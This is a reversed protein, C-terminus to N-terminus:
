ATAGATADVSTDIAGADIEGDGFNTQYFVIAANIAGTVGKTTFTAGSIADVDDAALIVADKGSFQSAFPEDDCAAGYGETEMHNVVAYGTIVGDKIGIVIQLPTPAFGVGTSSIVYGEGGNVAKVEEITNNTLGYSELLATSEEILKDANEVDDFSTADPYAVQYFETLDPGEVEQVGGGFNQQYFIIAANVAQTIANTTITAGSLADIETDSASGSKTYNLIVALKGAFQSKFSDEECNAGFGPTENQSIVDFGTLSGDTSIGVAIQVDGGYGIPTTSSVVYGIVTDGDVVSLVDNITCGAFGNEELLAPAAELLGETNEIESFDAADPFVARYAEARANIEAQAIPEKTVQNVLALAFIAVFTIAVLVITNIIINSKKKAM